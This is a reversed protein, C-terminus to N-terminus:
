IRRRRNADSVRQRKAARMLDDFTWPDDIARKKTPKGHRFPRSMCGYRTEDAVHDEPGKDIDNPDKESAVQVPVTRIFSTCSDFVYLMPVGGEGQLRAYMEQWGMVRQNDARRFVVGERAMKEAASPGLDAKWASPDMVGYSVKEGRELEKVRRAVERADLRLGKNKHGGYWERYRIIADKPYSVKRGSKTLVESGDSVAWWGISFPTAHGWDCSRFRVWWSPVEFPEVVHRDTRWCDFYAGAIANWDGDRLMRQQYEPLDAFQQLYEGADIFRNDALKAQIFISLPGRDAADLPNRSLSDHFLVGAPAPDVFREKLFLHGVGGPNSCFVIRPLRDAYEGKGELRWKEKLETSIRLRSKIYGLQYPTCQAAEDVGAWHIEWGQIDDVDHEHELHKFVLQSGNVFRFTKQTENYSGLARPLERIQVIHNQELQPGTRRFLVATMGPCNLCFDIADWRVAATKGGGAAGGYLIQRAKTRHLLLQKPQPSYPLVLETL